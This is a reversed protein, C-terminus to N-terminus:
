PQATGAEGVIPEPSDRGSQSELGKRQMRRRQTRTLRVSNAGKASLADVSTKQSYPAGGACDPAAPQCHNELVDEALKQQARPGDQDPHDTSCAASDGVRETATVSGAPVKGTCAQGQNALVFQATTLVLRLGVEQGGHAREPVGM